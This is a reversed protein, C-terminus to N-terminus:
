GYKERLVRDIADAVRCVAAIASRRESKSRSDQIVDNAFKVRRDILMRLLGKCENGSGAIRFKEPLMALQHLSQFPGLLFRDFMKPGVRCRQLQDGIHEFRRELALLSRYLRASFGGFGVM